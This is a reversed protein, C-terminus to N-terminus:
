VKVTVQAGLSTGIAVAWEPQPARRDMSALQPMASRNFRVLPDGLQAPLSMAQAISQCLSQDKAGGGIFILRSVPKDTFTSEHYRRCLELEDMLRSPDDKTIPISRAFRLQGAHGVVARVSHSGLDVFLNVADADAARRYIKEFCDVLARPQGIVGVLDLRAKSASEILLEVDRRAAAMVILESQTGGEGPFEGAIVHRLMCHEPDIPLKGHAERTIVENADGPSFLPTRLHRVHTLFAPLTLRAKRGKFAGDALMSKIADVFFRARQAPNELVDADVPRSEAWVVKLGGRDCETQVARLTSSGFDIGIPNARDPLMNRVFSLM